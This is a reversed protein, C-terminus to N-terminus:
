RPGDERGGGGGCGEGLHSGAVGGGAFEGSRRGEGGESGQDSQTRKAESTTKNSRRVGKHTPQDCPAKYRINCAKPHCTITHPHLYGTGPNRNVPHIHTIGTYRDLKHTTKSSKAKHHPPKEQM